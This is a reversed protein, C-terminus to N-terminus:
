NGSVTRSVNPKIGRLVTNRDKLEVEQQKIKKVADIDQSDAIYRRKSPSSPASAAQEAQAPEHESASRGELWEVVRKRETVSVFGLTLGNERAQRM